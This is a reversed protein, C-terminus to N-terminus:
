PMLHTELWIIATIWIQVAHVHLPLGDHTPFDYKHGQTHTLARHLLNTPIKLCIPTVAQVCVTLVMAKLNWFIWFHDFICSVKSSTMFHYRFATTFSNALKIFTKSFVDWLDSCRVLLCKTGLPFLAHKIVFRRESGRIVRIKKVTLM